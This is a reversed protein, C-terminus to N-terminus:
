HVRDIVALMMIMRKYRQLWSKDVHKRRSLAGIYMGRIASFLHSGSMERPSNHSTRTIGLFRNEGGPCQNSNNIIPEANPFRQYVKEAEYLKGSVDYPIGLNSVTALASTHEAGYAKEKGELTRVYTEEAEQMKGSHVAGNVKEYEKLARAHQCRGMMYDLHWITHIDDLGMDYWDAVGRRMCHETRLLHHNLRGNMLWFEPESDSAVNQAICHIALYFLTMDFEGIFHVMVWDHVCTHLSHHGPPLKIRYALPGLRELVEFPGACQHRLKPNFSPIDYGQGLHLYVQDGTAFQIPTHRSDYRLKAFANAFAIQSRRLGLHM